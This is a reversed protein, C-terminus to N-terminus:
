KEALLLLLLLRGEGDTVGKSSGGSASTVSSASRLEEHCLVVWRKRGSCMVTAFSGHDKDVHARTRLRDTSVLVTPYRALPPARQGDGAAGPPVLSGFANEAISADGDRTGSAELLLDRLGAAELVSRMYARIADSHARGRATLRAKQNVVVQAWRLEGADASRAFSEALYRSDVVEHKGGLGAWKNVGGPSMIWARWGEAPGDEGFRALWDLWGGTSVCPPEGLGYEALGTLILPEDSYESLRGAVSSLPLRQIEVYSYSAHPPKLWQSSLAAGCAFVVAAVCAAPTSLRSGMILFIQSPLRGARARIFIKPLACSLCLLGAKALRM